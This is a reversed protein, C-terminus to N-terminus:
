KKTTKRVVKKAPAKKAVPKRKIKEEEIVEELAEEFGDEAIVANQQNNERAKLRDIVEESTLWLEESNEVIITREEATIFGEYMETMLRNLQEDFFKVQKRVQKTDGWSGYKASHLMVVSHPMAIVSDCVMIFFTAASAVEGNIIAVTHADTSNVWNVIALATYVNGGGSNLHFVVVDEPGASELLGQLPRYPAPDGFLQDLHVHYTTSTKTDAFIYVKDDKGYYGDEDMKTKLENM